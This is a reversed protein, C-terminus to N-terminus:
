LLYQIFRRDQQIQHARGGPFFDRKQLRVGTVEAPVVQKHLKRLSVVLAELRFLCQLKQQAMHEHGALAALVGNRILIHVGPELQAHRSFGGAVIGAAIFQQFLRKGQGLAKAGADPVAAFVDGILEMHGLTQLVHPFLLVGLGNVPHNQINFNLEEAVHVQPFQGVILREAGFGQSQLM